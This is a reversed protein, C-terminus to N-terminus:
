QNVKAMEAARVRRIIEERTIRMYNEPNKRLDKAVWSLGKKQANTAIKKYSIHKEEELTKFVSRALNASEKSIDSTPLFIKAKGCQYVDMLKKNTGLYECGAAQLINHLESIKLGNIDAM